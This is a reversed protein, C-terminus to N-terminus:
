FYIQQDRLERAEDRRHLTAPAAGIGLARSLPLRRWPGRGHIAATEASLDELARTGPAQYVEGSGSLM